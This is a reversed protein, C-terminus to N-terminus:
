APHNSEVEKTSQIPLIVSFTASQGSKSEVWIRGGHAEVLTKAISLGVGTDGVGQILPNDARYRRAFVRPLDEPSIGGGTDTVQVLLYPSGPENDESHVRLTISGEQPTVTGANQLLHVIIQQLADKDAHVQPLQDPLDVRLTINKERLQASTDAIAQDIIATVEVPQTVLELPGSEIATIQILDDLLSRLRETSAKVRELFKRQLAGLIGASESLLLDTYGTISAMPQRLEQTISAVVEREENVPSEGQEGQKEMSLIKMNAEALSNQLRAIEELTLRLEGELHETEQPLQTEQEPANKESILRLKENEAQLSNILQQAEDQAALLEAMEPTEGPAAILRQDIEAQLRENELKFQELQSQAATLEEQIQIIGSPNEQYEARQLIQVIAEITTTLYNQDESTWIRNSYPSLLLIAGWVKQATALPITLIFGTNDLGIAEGLSVLDQATPNAGLIVSKGRNIANALNPAKNRDIVTGSLEEERILDYGGQIILEGSPSPSSVLFCLDALMTQAIARSLAPCIKSPNQQYALQLWAYVARPDSSYRRREQFPIANGSPKELPAVIHLRQALILLLPYSCLQALRVPGAFDGTPTVFLLNAVNGVLNIAIIGLGVAWGDTKRLLLVLIGIFIVVLSFLEWSWDLWSANFSVSPDQVSWASLTFLLMIVILLNVIGTLIDAARSPEPFGWLWVIWVLSFTMVARDFPPLFFHPNAAGQWALGSSLFLALQAVLIMVLGIVLRNIYIYRSSRRGIIVAQLTALVSFALTLHYILNGPPNTLVTFIQQLFIEM